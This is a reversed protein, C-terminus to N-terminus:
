KRACASEALQPYRKRAVAFLDAGSFGEKAVRDLAEAWTLKGAADAPTVPVPPSGAQTAALKKRLEAIEQQLAAVDVEPKAETTTQTAQEAVPTSTATSEATAVAAAEVPAEPAVEAKAPAGATEQQEPTAM